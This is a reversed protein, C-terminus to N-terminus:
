AEELWHEYVDVVLGDREARMRRGSTASRSSSATCRSSRFGTRATPERRRTRSRATSAPSPAPRGGCIGPTRCHGRHTAGAVRVRQGARIECGRRWSARSRPHGERGPEGRGLLALARLLQRARVRGAAHERDRAAARRREDCRRPRARRRPRRHPAGLGCARARHPRDAREDAGRGPRAGGAGRGSRLAVPRTGSEPPTKWRAPIPSGAAHRSCPM